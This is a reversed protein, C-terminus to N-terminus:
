SAPLNSRMACESNVLWRTSRQTGLLRKAQSLLACRPITLGILPVARIVEAICKRQANAHHLWAVTMVFNERPIDIPAYVHSDVGLPIYFPNKVPLARVVGDHECKCVFVNATAHRLAHRLILRQWFPRAHYSAPGLFDFVGTVLIPTGCGVKKVMPLFAWQWWWIFYLDVHRPIERWSTALVLEHGLDRLIQIDQHYFEVTEFKSQAAVRAFFGIRM